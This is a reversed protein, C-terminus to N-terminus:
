LDGLDIGLDEEVSLAKKEKEAKRKLEKEAGGGFWMYALRGTVPLHQLTDFQQGFNALDQIVDGAFGLPPLLLSSIFGTVDGKGLKGILYESVMFNKLAAGAVVDPMDTDKGTLFGKIWDASATAATFMATFRAANIGAAKYNGKEIQQVIDRRWIDAQKLMFTKLMYFIRGNPATLYKEPVESLSIPQVDSLTNWLLFKVNETVRGQQLARVVDDVEDQTRFLHGFEEAFKRTGQVTKVQKSFKNFSGTLIAKKGLGDMAKFGTLKLIRNLMHATTGTTSMEAAVTDLGIDQMRVKTGIGPAMAKLTNWVGNKYAAIGLDGLQTIASTPQGLTPMYFINKAAQLAPAAAEEGGRFRAALLKTLNALEGTTLNGADWESRVWNALTARTNPDTIDTFDVNRGLLRAKEITHAAYQLYHGLAKHPSAYHKMLEPTVEDIVRAKTFGPKMGERMASMGRLSHNIIGAREADTLPPLNKTARTANAKEIATEIADRQARGLSKVLANYDNVMRPFFEPLFGVDVGADTLDRHIERMITRTQNLGNQLQARQKPNAVRAIVAEAGGMDQNILRHNLENRLAPKLQKMSQLLGEAAKSYAMTRQHVDFDFKRLRAKLVPSYNGVRTSIIGFLSDAWSTSPRRALVGGETLGSGPSMRAASSATTMPRRGAKEWLAGLQEPLLGEDRMARHFAQGPNLKQSRYDFIKQELSDVIKSAEAALRADTVKVARPDAAYAARSAAREGAKRLVYAGLRGAQHFLEGGVAGGVFGVLASDVIEAANTDVEENIQRLTEAGATYASGAAGMRVLRGFLNAGKVAPVLAALPDSVVSVMDAVVKASESIQDAKDAAMSAARNREVRQVREEETEQRFTFTGDSHFEPQLSPRDQLLKLTQRSANYRDAYRLGKYVDSVYDKITTWTSSADKMEPYKDEAPATRADGEPAVDAPQRAANVFRGVVAAYRNPTQMAWKSPGGDAGTSMALVMADRDMRAAANSLGPWQHPKQGLQFYMNAIARQEDPAFKAFNPFKAKAEELAEQATTRLLKAADEPDIEVKGARVDDINYGLEELRKAADPRGLYFGHGITKDPEKRGTADTVHEAKRHLGEDQVLDQVLRDIFPVTPAPQKGTVDFNIPDFPEDSSIATELQQLAPTLDVEPREPENALDGGIIQQLLDMDTPNMAVEEEPADQAAEPQAGDMQALLALLDDETAAM